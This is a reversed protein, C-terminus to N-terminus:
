NFTWIDVNDPLEDVLPKVLSYALGGNGIGPMNLAFKKDPAASALLWLAATSSEILDLRAQDGWHYKVQFFGINDDFLVGYFGGSGCTETIKRGFTVDIGYWKDKVTKAIGRGMVVAGNNKITSNTTILFYDVNDYDDWMNGTKYVTM